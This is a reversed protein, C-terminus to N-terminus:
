IDWIIQNPQIMSTCISPQSHMVGIGSVAKVASIKMISVMKVDQRMAAGDLLM